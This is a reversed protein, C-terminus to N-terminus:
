QLKMDKSELWIEFPNEIIDNFDNLLNAGISGDLVRHDCSLTSKMITASKIKDNEVVVQKKAEGIALICSQPSNIIAGFESIGYMGLNSLSITGGDYVAYLFSLSSPQPPTIM